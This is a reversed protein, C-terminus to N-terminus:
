EVGDEDGIDANENRLLKKNFDAIKTNLAKEFEKLETPTLDHMEMVEKKIKWAGKTTQKGIFRLLDMNKTYYGIMAAIKNNGVNMEMEMEKILRDLKNRIIGSKSNFDLEKFRDVIEKPPKGMEFYKPKFLRYRGKPDILFGILRRKRLKPKELDRDDKWM